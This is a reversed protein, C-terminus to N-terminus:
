RRAFPDVPRMDVGTPQQAPLMAFPFLAAYDALDDPTAMRAHATERAELVIHALMETDLPRAEDPPVALLIAQPARSSPANFGFAAEVIHRKAPTTESWSDLVAVALVADGDQEGEGRGLTPHPSYCVAVNTSQKISANEEPQILAWPAPTNCWARWRAEPDLQHAELRALAPRVAAVTELWELDLNPAPDLGGYDELLALPGRGFIPMAAGSLESLAQTVQHIPTKDGILGMDDTLGKVRSLRDGLVTRAQELQQEVQEEHSLRHEPPALSDDLPAPAIGWRWARRLAAPDGAEPDLAEHLDNAAALLRDLRTRLEADHKKWLAIRHKDEDPVHHGDAAHGALLVALRRLRRYAQAASPQGTSDWDIVFGGPLHRAALQNLADESYAVTDAVRLGMDALKVVVEVAEGAEDATGTFQWTWQALPVSQELFTAVAADALLAPSADLELGAAADMTEGAKEPQGSVLAHVANAVLLDGYTDAVQRLEELATQQTESLNLADLFTKGEKSLAKQGDCVRRGAHEERIKFEGRLQEIKSKAGVIGEVGRGLVEQIHAGARVEDAFQRAMRVKRSDLEIKWRDAQFDNIQKDRLIVSTLLQAHSPALLTGGETPGPSGRYPKDVWAYLGLGDTAGESRLKTLRRWAMGTIWPDIRIAATDLIARLAREIDALRQEIAQRDGEGSVAHFHDRWRQLTAILDRFLQFFPYREDIGTVSSVEGDDFLESFRLKADQCWQELDSCYSSDREFREVAPLIGPEGIEIIRGTEAYLLALSHLILRILLSDTPLLLECYDTRKWFLNPHDPDPDDDLEFIRELHAFFMSGEDIEFHGLADLRATAAEGTDSNYFLLGGNAAGTIHTWGPALGGVSAVFQYVGTSSLRATEAEGTNANYFLLGDVNASVIHTWGTGLAGIGAGGGYQGQGTLWATATVGIDDNYFLLGGGATGTIHTWTSFDSLNAPLRRFAGNGELLATTGTGNAANYFLLGGQGASVIHTWGGPFAVINSVRELRDGASNLVATVRNGRAANYFFIGGGATGTIHTFERQFARKTIVSQYHGAGSLRATAYSRDSASPSSRHFFLSGENASVIHTWGPDLGALPGTPPPPEVLPLTLDQRWGSTVYRRLPHVPFALANSANETQERVWEFWTDAPNGDGLLAGSLLSMVQLPLFTRYGYDSASPSRGLLQVFRDTGTGAVTGSHQRASCAWRRRAHPLWPALWNREVPPDSATSRWANDNLRTVPLLGYPQDGIRLPPLPGEPHLWQQAWLGAEFTFGPWGLAQDVCWVDKLTHGWLSPWLLRVLDENLSRHGRTGGPIAGLTQRDGAVALAVDQTTEAESAGAGNLLRWWTDADQALDAAPEGSVTNTPAALPLMSLLGANRHSEFLDRPSASGLGVAIILEINELEAEDTFPLPYEAQLGAERIWWRGDGFLQLPHGSAGDFIMAARNVAMPPDLRRLAIKGGVKLGLWIEIQEPVDDMRSLPKQGIPLPAGPGFQRVLWWARAPGVQQALRGFAVRGLTQTQLVERLVDETSARGQEAALEQVATWLAALAQAEHDSVVDSHRNMWPDDPIVAIKLTWHVIPQGNEDEGSPEIFRTELRAPLLVGIQIDTSDPMMVIRM